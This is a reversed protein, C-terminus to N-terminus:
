RLLLKLVPRLEPFAANLLTTVVIWRVVKIAAYPQYVGIEVGALRAGRQGWQEIPVDLDGIHWVSCGSVGKLGIPLRAKQGFRDEFEIPAGDPASIDDAAGSLLLHLRPDFRLLGKPSGDYAYTTFELPKVSLREGDSTSPRTWLGPFGFLTYVARPGPDDFAVDSLRLFRVHQLKEVADPPLRYVAIDYDDPGGDETGASRIWNNVVPIFHRDISGSIAITKKADSAAQIVHAATVVFHFDALQFLIASGLQHVNPPDAIVIAVTSEWAQQPIHPTIRTNISRQLEQSDSM